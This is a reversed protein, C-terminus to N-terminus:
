RIKSSTDPACCIWPLTINQKISYYQFYISPLKM